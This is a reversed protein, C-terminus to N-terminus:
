DLADDSAARGALLLHTRGRADQTVSTSSPPEAAHLRLWYIARAATCSTPTCGAALCRGNILRRLAPRWRHPLPLQTTPPLSAAREEDYWRRQNAATREFEADRGWHHRQCQCQRQRGHTWCWPKRLPHQRPEATPLLCGNCHHRATGITNRLAAAPHSGGRRRRSGRLLPKRTLFHL